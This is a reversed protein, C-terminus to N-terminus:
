LGEILVVRDDRDKYKFVVRRHKGEGTSETEIDSAGSFISHVLMREYANMPQMEVDARFSRAREALLSAQQQIMKVKKRQYGNVDLIFQTDYTDSQKEAMKRLLYNLAKLHEGDNGILVAADKSKVQYMPCLPDSDYEVTDFEVTLKLLLDKILQQTNDRSM